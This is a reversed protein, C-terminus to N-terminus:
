EVRLAGAVRRTGALRTPIYLALIAITAVIPLAATVWLPITVDDGVGMSTCISRWAAAGAVLGVPVGIAAIAGATLAGQWTVIGRTGSPTMGLARLVAFDKAQARAVVSLMYAVLVAGLLAATIAGLWPLWRVRWLNAIRAPIDGLTVENFHQTILRDIAARRQNGGVLGLVMFQPAVDPAVRALGDLSILLGSGVDTHLSPLLAVGVITMSAAPDGPRAALQVTDGVNRGLSRLTRPGLAVESESRPPRGRLITVGVASVSTDQAWLSVEHGDLVVQELAAAMASSVISSDNQLDALRAGNLPFNVNGVMADWPFGHAAGSEHLHDLGAGYVAVGVVLAVSLAAGLIAQGATALQRRTPRYFLPRWRLRTTAPTVSHATTASRVWARSAHRPRILSIRGVLAGVSVVTVIIGVVGFALVAVNADAGREPEVLRGLGVPFLSSAVWATILAGLAGAAGVPAARAAAVAVLQRRTFGLAQLTVSDAVFVRQDARLLVAVGALGVGATMLGLVLLLTTEFGIPSRLAEADRGQLPTSFSEPGVDVGLERSRATFASRFGELGAPDVLRVQYDGAFTLFESGHEVYFRNSVILQTFNGIQTPGSVEDASLDQLSRYVAAVHFTYVPGAAAFDGAFLSERQDRDFTRVTVDDGPGVGLSNAAAENVIVSFPDRGDPLRGKVVRAFGGVVDWDLGIGNILLGLTGDDRVARMALYPNLVAREVGPVAAVEEASMTTSVQVDFPVLRGLARDLASGSRRSGALLALAVGAVLAVVVALVVVAGVRRRLQSGAVRVVAAFGDGVVRREAM